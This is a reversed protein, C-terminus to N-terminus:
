KKRSELWVECTADLGSQAIKAALISTGIIIWAPPALASIVAATALTAAVQSITKGGTITKMEANETECVIKMLQPELNGWWKQGIRKLDKVSLLDEADQSFDDLFHHSRQFGGPLKIDEIRLGLQEYLAEDSLQTLKEAAALADKHADNSM